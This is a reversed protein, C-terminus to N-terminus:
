VSVCDEVSPIWSKGGWEPYNGVLSSYFSVVCEQIQYKHRSAVLAEFIPDRWLTKLLAATEEDVSEVVDRRSLENLRDVVARTTETSHNQRDMEGLLLKVGEFLNDLVVQRL